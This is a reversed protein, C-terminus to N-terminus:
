TESHTSDRGIILEIKAGGEGALYKLLAHIFLVVGAMEMGEEVTNWLNYALTNLLDEDAYWDTSMEVGVAGGVFVAGALIFLWRTQSPLRWLFRLYALGFVAAAIGGPIAWSYDVQSNLTEHFGAIEDLSLAAFAATLGYWYLLSPDRDARKLRSILFLLSSALFLATTSYWTPISDEEDVDFLQRVPWPIKEWEYHCIQLLSHITLLGIVIITLCRVPRTTSLLLQYNSQTM